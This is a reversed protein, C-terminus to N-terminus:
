GVPTNNMGAGRGMGVKMGPNKIALDLARRMRLRQYELSERASMDRDRGGGTGVLKTFLERERDRMQSSDGRLGSGGYGGGVAPGGYSMVAEDPDGREAKLKALHAEVDRIEDDQDSM